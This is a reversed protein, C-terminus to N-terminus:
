GRAPIPFRKQWKERVAASERLVKATRLLLDDFDVANSQKLLSEYGAYIDAVKRTDPGFAEARMQEPTQGQNKAYSIRSLVNRPTLADDEIRLKGMALKVAALQDDDDYIAFDKAM